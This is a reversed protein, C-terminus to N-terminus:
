AAEAEEVLDSPDPIIRFEGGQDVARLIRLPMGFAIDPGMGEVAEVRKGGFPDAIGALIENNSKRDEAMIESFGGGGGEDVTAPPRPPMVMGPDFGGAAEKGSHGAFGGQDLGDEREHHLVHLGCLKVLGAGAGAGDSAERVPDPTQISECPHDVGVHISTWWLRSAIALGRAPEEVGGFGERDIVGCWCRDQQPAIDEGEPNWWPRGDPFVNTGTELCLEVSEEM